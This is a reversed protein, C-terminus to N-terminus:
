EYAENDETLPVTYNNVDKYYYYTEESKSTDRIKIQYNQGEIRGEEQLPQWSFIGNYEFEIDNRLVYISTPLFTYIKGGM